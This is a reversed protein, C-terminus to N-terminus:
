FVISIKLYSPALMCFAPSYIVFKLPSASYLDKRGAGNGTSISIGDENEVNIDKGYFTNDYYVKVEANANLSVGKIVYENSNDPNVEMKYNPDSTNWNNFTGTLYCTSGGASGYNSWYNDNNDDQNMNTPTYLNKDGPWTLNKTQNYKNEWKNTQDNPNMRCFIVNNHSEGNDVTFKYITGEVLYMSYWKASSSGNCVYAAFRVGDSNWGGGSADLYLTTGGTITAGWASSSVGLLVCLLAVVRLAKSFAGSMLTNNYFRKM